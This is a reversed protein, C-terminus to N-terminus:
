IVYPDFYKVANLFVNFENFKIEIESEDEENIIVISNGGDKEVLQVLKTESIRM